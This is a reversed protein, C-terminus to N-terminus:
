IGRGKHGGGSVAYVVFENVGVALAFSGNGSITASSNNPTAIITVSQEAYLVTLSYEGDM